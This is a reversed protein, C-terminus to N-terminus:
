VPNNRHVPHGRNPAALKVRMPGNDGPALLKDLLRAHRHQSHIQGFILTKHTSPQNIYLSLKKHQEPVIETSLSEQYSRVPLQFTPPQLM